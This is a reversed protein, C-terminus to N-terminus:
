DPQSKKKRKGKKKLEKLCYEPCCRLVSLKRGIDTGCSRM